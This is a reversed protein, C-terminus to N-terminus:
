PLPALDPPVYSVKAAASNLLAQSYHRGLLQRADDVLDRNQSLFREWALGTDAAGRQAMIRMLAESLTRHYKGPVGLYQAFRAIGDCTLRIAQEQPHRQLHIWAIRVHGVHNFASPPASCDNFASLFADDSFVPPKSM